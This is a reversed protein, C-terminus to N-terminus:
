HNQDLSFFPQVTSIPTATTPTAINRMSSENATGSDKDIVSEVLKGDM